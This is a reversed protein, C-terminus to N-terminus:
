CLLWRAWASRWFASAEAPATPLPKSPKQKM